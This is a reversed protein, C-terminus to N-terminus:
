ITKLRAQEDTLKDFYFKVSKITSNAGSTTNIHNGINIINLGTPITCSTDETTIASGNTFARSSNTDFYVSFKYDQNFTFPQNQSVQSVSTDYMQFYINDDTSEVHLSVYNDFSNDSVMFIYKDSNSDTLTEFEVSASKISDFDGLIHLDDAERTVTAGETKIYSTLIEEELQAGFVYLSSTGDGSYSNSNDADAIRIYTQPTTGGTSSNFLVSIRYWGDYYEEIDAVSHNSTGIEGTSLNFWTSEISGAKNTTTLRIWIREGVKAFVSFVYDTSDSLSVTKSIGHNTSPSYYETIKTGTTEGTPSSVNNLDVTCSTETWGGTTNDLSESYTLLNTASTESLFGKITQLYKGNSDLESYNWASVRRAGQFRPENAEVFVVKNEFDKFSAVSDREFEVKGTYTGHNGNGSLDLIRNNGFYSESLKWRGICNTGEYDSTRGESYLSVIDESSVSDSFIQVNDIQGSFFTNGRGIGWTTGHSAIGITSASSSVEVGNFYIKENLYDIYINNWNSLPYISSSTTIRRTLTGASNTFEGRIEGTTRIQINQRNGASGCIVLDSAPLSDGINCWLSIGYITNTNLDLKVYDDVGNFTYTNFDNVDEPDISSLLPISLIYSLLDEQGDLYIQNNERWFILNKHNLNEKYYNEIVTKAQDEDFSAFTKVQNTM